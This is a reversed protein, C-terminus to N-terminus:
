MRAECMRPRTVDEREELDQFVSRRRGSFCKLPGMHSVAEELFGGRVGTWCGAIGKYSCTKNCCIRVDTRKNSDGKSKLNWLSFYTEIAQQLKGQM